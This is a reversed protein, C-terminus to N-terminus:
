PIPVALVAIEVLKNVTSHRFITARCMGAMSRKRSKGNEVSICICKVAKELTSGICVYKM